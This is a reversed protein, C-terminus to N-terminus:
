ERAPPFGAAPLGARVLIRRAASAACQIGAQALIVILTLRAVARLGKEMREATM